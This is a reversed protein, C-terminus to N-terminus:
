ECECAMKNISIDIFVSIRPQGSVPDDVLLESKRNSFVVCTDLKLLKINGRRELAFPPNKIRPATILGILKGAYYCIM